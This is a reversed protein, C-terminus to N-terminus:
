LEKRRSLVYLLCWWLALDPGLVTVHCLLVALLLIIAHGFDM